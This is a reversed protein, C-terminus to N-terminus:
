FIATVGIKLSDFTFIKYPNGITLGLYQINTDLIKGGVFLETILFEAGQVFDQDGLAIAEYDMLRYFLNRWYQPRRSFFIAPMWWCFM